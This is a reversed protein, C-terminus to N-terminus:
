LKGRRRLLMIVSIGASYIVSTEFLTDYGRYDVIIATVINPVATEEKGKELYRVIVAYRYVELKDGEKKVFYYKEDELYYKEGKSIKLDWGEDLKDVTSPVPFGRVKIEEKLNEPIVGRNLDDEAGRADISIYLKVYKTAPQNPDGFAPIDEIVYMFLALLLLVVILGFLSKPKMEGM